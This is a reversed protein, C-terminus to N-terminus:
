LLALQSLESDCGTPQNNPNIMRAIALTMDPQTSIESLARIAYMHARAYTHIRTRKRKRKCKCTLGTTHTRTRIHTFTCIHTHARKRERRRKSAYERVHAQTYICACASVSNNVCPLKLITQIHTIEKYSGGTLKATIHQHSAGNHNGCSRSGISVHDM